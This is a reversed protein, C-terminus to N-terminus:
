NLEIPLAIELVKVKRWCAEKKCWETVNGSNPPDVIVQHVKRSVLQIAETLLPSIKQERWIQELDVLSDIKSALWALTYTVINARYGGFQEKQVLKEASKFLIAKAVLHRFYAPDVEISEGEALRDAFKCFNKQAGLSVIHPLQGWTNEYKALDTKTFKQAPPHTVTFTKQKAPSTERSKADLYQGRAREYFWRTQRQSGDVAPAWITRSLEEIRIHFPDNASFDADSVRNQNNAYRSILPVIEDVKEREVITLKLQVYIQSIDARDKRVAHYISATTQGGNVIQLDRIWVIGQGGDPRVVYRVAEATASLGNNYALFRHPEELITKRISKNVKGRSQLFSRVNRELLRSGYEGYLKYLVQAPLIVLCADYDANVPPMPLCPISLDYQQQFDIEIAERKKGSSVCRYTRQLDWIEYSYVRENIERKQKVSITTLGDTFLFLRIRYLQKHLSHILQALDFIASAEEISRHYGEFAKSLFGILRKFAAEVDTKGVTKPPIEQNYISVFLDLRGEDENLSYGNIKLGRASHYSVHGDELEGADVLYEIMLQTFYDERFSDGIGDEDAECGTIVEQHLNEAFELLGVDTQTM